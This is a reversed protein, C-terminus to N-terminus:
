YRGALFATAQAQTLGEREGKRIFAKRDSGRRKSETQTVGPTAVKPVAEGRSRRKKPRNLIEARMGERLQLVLRHDVQGEAIMAAEQPSYGSREAYGRLQGKVKNHTVPDGWEKWAGALQQQQAQVQQQQQLQAQNLREQEAKQLTEQAQGQELVALNFRAVQANFADPDEVALKEDPPTPRRMQGKLAAITQDLEATNVAPAPLPAAVQPMVPIAPATSQRLHEPLKSVAVKVAKGDVGELELVEDGSSVGLLLREDDDYDAYPDVVPEKEKTDEREHEIEREQLSLRGVAENMTLVENDM